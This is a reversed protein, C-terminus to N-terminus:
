SGVLALPVRVTTGLQGARQQNITVNETVSRGNSGVISVNVDGSASGGGSQAGAENLRDVGSRFTNVLSFGSAVKGIVSTIRGGVGFLGLFGALSGLVSTLGMLATKTSDAQEQIKQLGNKFELARLAAEDMLFIPQDLVSSFEPMRETVKGVSAEVADLEIRVPRLTSELFTIKRELEKDADIREAGPRPGGFGEPFAFPQALGAGLAGPGISQAPTELEKRFAAFDGTLTALHFRLTRAFGTAISSNSWWAKLRDTANQIDVALAAFQLGAEGTEDGVAQTLEEVQRLVEIRFAEKREVDTLASTLKGISAAYTANAKDVDVIIGLNDLLLRSQRAIGTNLSNLAFTTDLGLTRGLQQAGKALAAFEGVTRASGLTLALNAQTMLETDTVMGRTASRLRGLASDTDGVRNAFAGQIATIRDGERALDSMVKITAGVAATAATVALAHKKWGAILAGQVKDSEGATAKLRRRYEADDLKMLVALEAIRAM